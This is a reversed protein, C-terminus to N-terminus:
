IFQETRSHKGSIHVEYMYDGLPVRVIALALVLLALFVLGAASSSVLIAGSEADLRAPRVGAHDARPLDARVCEDEDV